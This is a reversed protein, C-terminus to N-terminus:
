GSLMCVQMWESLNTKVSLCGNQISFNPKVKNEKGFIIYVQRQPHRGHQSVYCMLRQDSVVLIGKSRSKINPKSMPLDLNTLQMGVHLDEDVLVNTDSAIESQADAPLKSSGLGMGASTVSILTLLLLCYFLSYKTKNRPSPVNSRSIIRRHYIKRVSTRSLSRLATCNLSLSNIVFLTYIINFCYVVYYQAHEFSFNHSTM